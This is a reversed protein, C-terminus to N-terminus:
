DRAFLKSDGFDVIEELRHSGAVAERLANAARTHFMKNPVIMGIRGAESCLQLAREVFLYYMDYKGTATAYRAQFYPLAPKVYYGAMLWPPNMVLADFGGSAFVAPFEARWDFANVQAKAQGSLGQANVEFFDPGVLSNGCKINDGLDPLARRHFLALQQALTEQTEGELVKLLLSLKTVEVAQPDLDVGYLHALLIRKRETTTLRWGGRGDERITAAPGKSWRPIEIVYAAVYWDLLKHYADLLFTGSGCAPDVIRLASKGSQLARVDSAALLPTL